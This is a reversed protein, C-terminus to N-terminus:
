NCFPQRPSAVTVESFRRRTEALSRIETRLADIDAATVDHSTEESDRTLAHAVGLAVAVPWDIGIAAAPPWGIHKAVVLLDL